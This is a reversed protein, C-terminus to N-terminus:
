VADAVGVEGGAFLRGASDVLFGQSQDPGARFGGAAREFVGEVVDQGIRGYFGPQGGFESPGGFGAVQGGVFRELPEGVEFGHDIFCEAQPVVDGATERAGVGVVGDNVFEVGEGGVGDHAHAGTVEVEVGGAVRVVRQNEIRVTPEVRGASPVAFAEEGGKALSCPRTHAAVEGGELEQHGGCVQKM